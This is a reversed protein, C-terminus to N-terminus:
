LAICCPCITPYHPVPHVIICHVRTPKAINRSYDDAAQSTGPLPLRFLTTNNGVSESIGFIFIFFFQDHQWCICVNCLNEKRQEGSWLHCCDLLLKAPCNRVWITPVSVRNIEVRCCYQVSHCSVNTDTVFPVISM